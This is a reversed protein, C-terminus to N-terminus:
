RAVVKCALDREFAPAKLTLSGGPATVDLSVDVESPDSPNAYEPVGALTFDGRHYRGVTTADAKLELAPAAAAAGIRIGSATLPLLTALVFRM